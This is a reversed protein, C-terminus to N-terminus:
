ASEYRKTMADGWLEELNYFKRKETKFIHVVVNVYDLLVWEAHELGEINWPEHQSAKFVDEEIGSAIARVQINSDAHCLIFYDAIANAINKLDLRIIECGKKEKIGKIILESIHTSNHFDKSKGM